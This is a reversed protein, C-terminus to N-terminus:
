REHWVERDQPDEGWDTWFMLGQEPAVSIARPLDLDDWILVSRDTELGSLGAVEIRKTDSDTWYIKNGVWDRALGKPNVLDTTVINEKDVMGKVRPDINACRIM